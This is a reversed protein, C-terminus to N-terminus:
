WVWWNRNVFSFFDEKKVIFLNARDWDWWKRKEKNVFELRILLKPRPVCYFKDEVKYVIYDAKSLYVWSPEGNCMYEFGVNGTNRSIKDDKIEYYNDIWWRRARIDWDSFKMDPALEVMSAWRKLLRMAFEVETNRWSKLDEEFM